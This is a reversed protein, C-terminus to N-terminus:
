SSYIGYRKREEVGGRLIMTRQHSQLLFWCSSRQARSSVRSHHSRRRTSGVGGWVGCSSVGWVNSRLVTAELHIGQNFNYPVSCWQSTMSHKPLIGGPLTCSYESPYGPQSCYVGKRRHRRNTWLCVYPGFAYIYEDRFKINFGESELNPTGM